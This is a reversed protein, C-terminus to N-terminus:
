IRKKKLEAELVFKENEASEHRGELAALKKRLSLAEKRWKSRSARLDRAEVRKKETMSSRALKRERDDGDEKKAQTEPRRSISRMKECELLESYIRAAEDVGRERCLAVMEFGIEVTLDRIRRYNETMMGAMDADKEKVLMSSSRGKAGYSLQFYPGHKRPDKKDKCRCGPMGCVNFQRSISGPLIAGAGVFKRVLIRLRKM